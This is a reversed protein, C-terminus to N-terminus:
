NCTQSQWDPKDSVYAEAAEELMPRVVDSMPEILDSIKEWDSGNWQQIFIAGSGEHDACSGKVAGTFGPLGLETLREENLDINELGDRMDAGTIIKKGSTEQAVRIGEALIVANFLGRNYLVNGVDDESAV